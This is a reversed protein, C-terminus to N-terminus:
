EGTTLHGLYADILKANDIVQMRAAHDRGTPAGPLKQISLAVGNVLINVEHLSYDKPDMAQEALFNYTAYNCRWLRQLNM